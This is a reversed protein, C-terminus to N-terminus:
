SFLSERETRMEGKKVKIKIKGKGKRMNKRKRKSSRKERGNGKRMKKRKRESSRM